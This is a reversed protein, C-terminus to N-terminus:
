KSGGNKHKNLLSLVGTEVTKGSDVDKGTYILEPEANRNAFIAPDSEVAATCVEKKFDEVSFDDIKNNFDAIASESLYQDYKALIAKKQNTEVAKKFAVLSKNENTIDSVKNELEVKENKLVKIKSTFDSITTEQESIKNEYETKTTELTTIQEELSTKTTNFETELAGIKEMTDEYKEQTAEYTGGVAKITELATYENETVDVIKVPVSKGLTINDGDKTYYVRSYGNKNMCLAYDDYVKTVFGNFEWNGEENFNPNILNFLIDAKEDDSIRFLAKDMKNKEEKKTFKEIEAMLTKLEDINAKTFFAAGEFCPEVDDGLSQLGVLEGSLFYYYPQKDEGIRWEGQLTKRYIEMSQSKRPILKAESYLGTYLLVDACAYTRVVGDEDKYDEWAFNPDAMVLGYIRGDTNDEGHDEYDLTDKDFIGKVPAYPLSAILQNAFDESIFTRNRNMGKYFIRVRCKSLTNTIQEPQGFLSVDLTTPIKSFNPTLNDENM